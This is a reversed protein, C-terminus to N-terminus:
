IFTYNNNDDDDDDNNNNNNNNNNDNNNNNVDSRSTVLCYGQIKQMLSSLVSNTWNPTAM